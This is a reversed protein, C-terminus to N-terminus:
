EKTLFKDKPSSMKVITAMRPEEPKKIVGKAVKVGPAVAGGVTDPEWEGWQWINYLRNLIKM